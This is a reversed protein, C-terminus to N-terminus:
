SLGLHLELSPTAQKENPSLGSFQTIFCNTPLSILRNYDYLRVRVFMHPDSNRMENLVGILEQWDNEKPHCKLLGNRLERTLYM